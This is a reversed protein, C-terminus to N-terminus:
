CSLSLWAPIGAFWKQRSTVSLAARESSTTVDAVFPRDIKLAPFPLQRLQELSSYGTGFDDIALEIGKLRLRSLIDMTRTPDPRAASETVELCFHNAPIGAQNLRDHVRDPFKLDHLNKGSINPLSGIPSPM